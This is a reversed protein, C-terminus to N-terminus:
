QANQLYDLLQQTQSFRDEAGLVIILIRRNGVSFLSVLNQKSEDIYGTKGGLFDPRGAFFNINPFDGFNKERSWDLIEQHNNVIYKILKSIDDATSQNLPSLGTSDFFVTQNMGLEAAKRNMSKVFDGQGFLYFDALATAAQNSSTLMMIKILDEIKYLKGEELRGLIGGLSLANGSSVIEKEKGFEEIALVATMLKTLSALPWRLNGNYSIFDRDNDFDSVLAIRTKLVIDPSQRNNDLATQGSVPLQPSSSTKPLFGRPINVVLNGLFDSSSGYNLKPLIQPLIEEQVSASSQGESALSTAAMSEAFSVPEKVASTKIRTEKTIALSVLILFVLLLSQYNSRM